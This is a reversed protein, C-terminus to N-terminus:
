RVFSYAVYWRPQHKKIEDELVFGRDSLEKLLLMGSENSFDPCTCVGRICNIQGDPTYRENIQAFGRHVNHNSIALCLQTDKPPWRKMYETDVPLGKRIRIDSWDKLLRNMMKFDIADVSWDDGFTTPKGPPVSVYSICAIMVILM